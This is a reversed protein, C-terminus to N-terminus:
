TIEGMLSAAEVTSWSYLRVDPKAEMFKVPQQTNRNLKFIIRVYMCTRELLPKPFFSASIHIDWSKLLGRHMTYARYSLNPNRRRRDSTRQGHNASKESRHYVYM